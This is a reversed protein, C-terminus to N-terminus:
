YAPLFFGPLGDRIFLDGWDSSVRQFSRGSRWRMKGLLRLPEAAGPLAAPVAGLAGWDTQRLFYAVAEDTALGAPSKRFLPKVRLYDM